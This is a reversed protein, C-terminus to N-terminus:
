KFCEVLLETLSRVKPPCRQSPPRVVYIAVPPLPHRTMIPVLAGSAVYEHILGDPLYAIGLGAVAAAALATRSDAKFRGQPQIAIIRDGDVFRWSEAGQMLVEHALLEEPREPAGHREIYSPSAVLKAHIQGIGRAILNSNPLHGVRIACDFSETLPDVFRDCFRALEVM